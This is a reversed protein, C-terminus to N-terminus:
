QQQQRQQAAPEALHARVTVAMAEELGGVQVGRVPAAGLYDLAAAVRVYAETTCVGNAPDFGVWGLDEVYAEAWAHGAEQDVPGDPHVLYGSVYRAPIGLSRACGIFVHAFDQCVGHGHRFALAATTAAETRGVEFTMRERLSNMLAHMGDLTSATGTTAERAFALMAEDPETLDTERLYLPLPLREVQGRIIGGTDETEVELDVAVELHEFNGTLTFTHIVNGFADERETLRCDESVEIRQRRVFQGDHSRPSLRLRQMVYKAPSAYRYTTAHSVQIRM